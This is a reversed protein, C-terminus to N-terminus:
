ANMATSGRSVIQRVNGKPAAKLENQRKKAEIVVGGQGAEVPTGAVAVVRVVKGPMPATIKKPGEASDGSSRRGRLARPDRVECRFSRGNLFIWNGSAGFDRKIEYSRGDILLSLVNHEIQLADFAVEKGDLKCLWANPNEASRKLEVVHKRGDITVEYIM